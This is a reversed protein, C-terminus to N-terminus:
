AHPHEPPALHQALWATGAVSWHGLDYLLVPDRVMPAWWMDDRQGGPFLAYLVADTRAHRYQYVRMASDERLIDLVVSPTNVTM